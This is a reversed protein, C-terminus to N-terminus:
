NGARAFVREPNGGETQREPRRTIVNLAVAAILLAGSGYFALDYSGTMDKVIGAALPVFFGFGWGLFILGYNIGLNKKGFFDAANAPMLALGGGYQWYAVGVALFLLVVNATSIIWPMALLFFACVLCNVTYANRRGIVDSYLGTGVRGIANVLGGYAALIWANQAFFGTSVATKKLIPAANAIVLLGSQATGVFMFVLAYYQWTKLMENPMWDAAPASLKKNAPPAPAVYGAPPLSLFQAAIIIVATFAAGFAFFSGSIGFTEVLYNGLPSIYMAAGGFGGVTIGAILGYKAPGFWRLATPTPAAYAIGMGIGGLVGFGLLLGTYSKMLGALICGAGLFVGGIMVSVKPGFKDFIRGGAIMFIAFILGCLSYAVTGQFDTLYPWGANIGTMVEGANAKAGNVLVGKWVSWAYLIGLCLNVAVGAGTVIWARVPVKRVVESM